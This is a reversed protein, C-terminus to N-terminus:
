NEACADAWYTALDLTLGPVAVSRVVGARVVPLDRFTAVVEAGDVELPRWTGADNRLFLGARTPLPAAAIGANLVWLEPVGSELYTRWRDVRDARGLGLDSRFTEDSLVEAVLLLGGPAAVDRTPMVGPRGHFVALDPEISTPGLRSEPVTHGRLSVIRPLSVSCEQVVEYPRDLARILRRTLTALPFRHHRQSDPSMLALRGEDDREYWRGDPPLALLDQLSIPDGLRFGAPALEPATVDPTTDM